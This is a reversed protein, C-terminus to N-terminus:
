WKKLFDVARKAAEIGTVKCLVTADNDLRLTIRAGKETIIEDGSILNMNEYALMEEMGERNVLVTGQVENVRINRYEEEKQLVIFVIAVAAITLVATGLLLGLKAAKGHSGFWKKIFRDGEFMRRVNLAMGCFNVMAM